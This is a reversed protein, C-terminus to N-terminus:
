FRSSPRRCFHERLSKPEFSSLKHNAQTFTIFLQKAMDAVRIILMSFTQDAVQTANAEHASGGSLYALM